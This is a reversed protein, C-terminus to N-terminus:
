FWSNNDCVDKKTVKSIMKLDSLKNNGLYKLEYDASVLDIDENEKAWKGDCFFSSQKAKFLITDNNIELYNNEVLQMGQDFEFISKLENGDKDIIFAYVSEDPHIVTYLIIDGIQYLEVFEESFRGYVDYIKKDNYYIEVVDTITGIDVNNIDDIEIKKKKYSVEHSNDNEKILFSNFNSINSTSNGLIVKKNFVKYCIIGTAVVIIIVIVLFIRMKKNENKM